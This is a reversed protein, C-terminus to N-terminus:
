GIRSVTRNPHSKKTFFGSFSNFENEGCFCSIVLLKILVFHALGWSCM